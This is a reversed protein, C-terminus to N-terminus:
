KEDKTLIYFVSEFKLCRLTAKLFGVKSGQQASQCRKSIGQKASWQGSDPLWLQTETERVQTKISDLIM